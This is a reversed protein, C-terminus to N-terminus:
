RLPNRETNGPFSTYLPGRRVEFDFEGRLVGLLHEVRRGDRVELWLLEGTIQDGDEVGFRLFRLEGQLQFSQTSDRCREFLLLSARIEGQPKISISRELNGRLRRIDQIELLLGDVEGFRRGGKQIRILAHEDELELSFFDPDLRFASCEEVPTNLDCQYSLEEGDECGPINLSGQIQGSGPPEVCSLLLLSILAQRM